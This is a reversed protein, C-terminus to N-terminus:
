GSASDKMDKIINLIEDETVPSLHFETHQRRNLYQKFDNVASPINNSLKPGIETFFKNFHNAIDKKSTILGHHTDLKEPHKNANNRNLISNIVQWTKKGNGKNNDLSSRYYQSEAKRIMKTVRNRLTRYQDGYTLPYKASKKQLKHKEKILSKIEHTIFPKNESDKRHQISHFPFHKDFLANFITYFNEICVNPNSSNLVLDWTTDELSEIFKNVNVASFNRVLKPSEIETKKTHSLEFSSVIPFHDSTQSYIIGCSRLERINNCWIHDILTASKSTVRTPKTIVNFFNRSQFNAVLDQMVGVSDLKFLDFNFDGTIIITKNETSLTQLIEDLKNIFALADSKPRRYVLGVIINKTQTKVEIFLTEIFDHIMLLDQRLFSDINNKVYMTVGGSLRTNNNTYMNFNPLTYLQQINSTLKTECFSMIDFAEPPTDLVLSNLNKPISNINCCFVNLYNPPKTKFENPFSGPFIYDCPPNHYGLSQLFFNDPDYQRTNIDDNYTFSEINMSNLVHLPLKYENSFLIDFYEDDVNFFPLQDLLNAM